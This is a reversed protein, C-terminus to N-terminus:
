FLLGFMGEPLNWLLLSLPPASFTNLFIHIFREWCFRQRGFVYVYFRVGFLTFAWVAHPSADYDFM